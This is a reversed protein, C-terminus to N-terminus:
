AIIATCSSYMALRISGSRSRERLRELVEVLMTGEFPTFMFFVAGQAYEARRADANVFAVQTLHPDTARHHAYACFAPEFDVGRAPAGSLLHVLLAVHGMGPGLDYFCDHPGLKARRTVVFILRAPTRQYLVMEPEM